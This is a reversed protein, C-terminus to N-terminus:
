RCRTTSFCANRSQHYLRVSELHGKTLSTLETYLTIVRAKGKPQYHEKLIKISAKGDDVADRMILSISRDDLVQILEDFIEANVSADDTNLDLGRIRLYSVFKLIWIEFNREDGDFTTPRRSNMIPRPGYGTPNHLNTEPREAM